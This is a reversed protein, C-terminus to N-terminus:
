SRGRARRSGATVALATFGAALTVFGELLCAVVLGRGDGRSGFAGVVVAWEAALAIALGLGAAVMALKFVKVM